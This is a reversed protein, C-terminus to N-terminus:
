SGVSAEQSNVPPIKPTKVNKEKDQLAETEKIEVLSVPIFYPTRFPGRLTEQMVHQRIAGTQVSVAWSYIKKLTEQDPIQEGIWTYYAICHVSFNTHGGDRPNSQILVGVQINKGSEGVMKFSSSFSVTHPLIENEHANDKVPIFNFESGAFFFSQIKLPIQHLAANFNVDM